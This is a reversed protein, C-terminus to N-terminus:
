DQLILQHSAWWPTHHGGCRHASQCLLHHPHNTSANTNNVRRMITISIFAFDIRVRTLVAYLCPGWDFTIPNTSKIPNEWSAIIHYVLWAEVLLQNFALGETLTSLFGGVRVSERGRKRREECGGRAGSKEEERRYSQSWRNMRWRREKKMKTVIRSTCYLYPQSFFISLHQFSSWILTGWSIELLSSSGDPRRAGDSSSWFNFFALVHGM